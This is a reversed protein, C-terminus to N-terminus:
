FRLAATRTATTTVSAGPTWRKADALPAWVEEPHQRRGGMRGPVRSQFRSSRSARRRNSQSQFRSPLFVNCGEDWQRFLLCLFMATLANYMTTMLRCLPYRRM